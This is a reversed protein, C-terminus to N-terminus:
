IATSSARRTRPRWPLTITAVLDLADALPLPEREIRDRLSEGRLWEMVFYNRGDPLAGFSFVDVINHHGIQNVARAEQVFREVAEKNVSLEPHLVKVAARKAIVPHVASYVRGMGGSGLEGEIRYEGVMTGAVLETTAHFATPERGLGGSSVTHDTGISSPTSRRGGPSDMVAV